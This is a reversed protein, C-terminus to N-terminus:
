RSVITVPAARASACAPDDALSSPPNPLPASASTAGGGSYMCSHARASAPGKTQEAIFAPIILVVALIILILAFLVWCPCLM